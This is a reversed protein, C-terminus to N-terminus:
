NSIELNTKKNILKGINYPHEMKIKVAVDKDVPVLEIDVGEVKTVIYLANNLNDAVCDWEIPIAKNEKHLIAHAKQGAITNTINSAFIIKM